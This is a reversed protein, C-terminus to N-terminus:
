GKGHLLKLETLLTVQNCHGFFKADLHEILPLAQKLIEEGELTLSLVKARTDTPHTSRKIWQKIELKQAVQSIQMADIKCFESLQVQTLLEGHRTLWGIGTLLVFQLHTLDLEALALEVQRQWSHVVQWLLFGASDEPVAFQSIREWDISM